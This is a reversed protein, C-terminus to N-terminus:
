VTPAMFTHNSFSGSGVRLSYWEVECVDRFIDALQHTSTLMADTTTVTTNQCFLVTGEQVLACMEM